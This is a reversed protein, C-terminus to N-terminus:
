RYVMAGLQIKLGVYLFKKYKVSLDRFDKNELLKPV